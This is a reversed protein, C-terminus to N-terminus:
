IVSLKERINLYFDYFTISTQNFRAKQEEPSVFRTNIKYYNM